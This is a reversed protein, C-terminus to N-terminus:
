VVVSGAICMVVSGTKQINSWEMRATVVDPLYSWSKATSGREAGSRSGKRSGVPSILQSQPKTVYTLFLVSVM